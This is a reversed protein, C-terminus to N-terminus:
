VNLVPGLMFINSYNLKELKSKSSILVIRADDPLDVTEDGEPQFYQVRASEAILKLQNYLKPPLSTGIELYVSGGQELQEAMTHILDDATNEGDAKLVTGGQESLNSLVSEVESDNKCVIIGVDKGYAPDVEDLAQVFDDIKQTDVM